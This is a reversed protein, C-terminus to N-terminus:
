RQCMDKEELRAAHRCPPQASGGSSSDSIGEARAVRWRSEAASVRPCHLGM